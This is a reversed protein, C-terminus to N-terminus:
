ELYEKFMQDVFENFRGSDVVGNCARSLEELISSTLSKCNLGDLSM